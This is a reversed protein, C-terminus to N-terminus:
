PFAHTRKGPSKIRSAITVIQLATLAKKNNNIFEGVLKTRLNQYESGAWGMNFGYDGLIREMGEVPLFPLGLLSRQAHIVSEEPNPLKVEIIDDFRGSRKLAGDIKDPRNTTGIIFLNDIHGRMGDLCQLIANIREITCVSAVKGRDPCIADLEDFVLGM